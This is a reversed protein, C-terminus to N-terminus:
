DPSCVSSAHDPDTIKAVECRVFTGRQHAFQVMAASAEEFQENTFPKLTDRLATERILGQQRTIERELWGATAGEQGDAAPTTEAASTVSSTLADLFAQRLEPVLWARRTLVNENQGQRIPYDISQFTNDEDWSIFQSLDKKEFRYFYFNNMGAYGCIGDWEALFAQVAVLKMFLALDLYQSVATVFSADSSENIARIMAEIPGYLKAASADEHTKPSFMAAYGALDSGLYEFHYASVWNWEFLHGDNEDQEATGFVRKLFAKDIEEIIVYLGAFANNVYLAAHAERPAPLGMRQVFKMAVTERITSPDQTVNDLVISKLGLFTQDTTYRDMDVRLGPKTGSRSGSGRSRIGVNRVTIGQWKLNAPYYENTQFNAKLKEWDRSNVYLDVRQLVADNFLDATTQAGVNWVGALLLAFAAAVTAGRHNTM